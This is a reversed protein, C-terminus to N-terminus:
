LCMKLITTFNVKYNFIVYIPKFLPHESFSMSTISQVCICIAM